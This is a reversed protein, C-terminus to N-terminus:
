WGNSVHCGERGQLALPGVQHAAGGVRLLLELRELCGERLLKAAVLLLNHTQASLQTSGVPGGGATGGGGCGFGRQQPRALFRGAWCLANASLETARRM